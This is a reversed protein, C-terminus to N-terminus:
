LNNLFKYTQEAIHEIVLVATAEEVGMSFIALVFPRDGYVFAVDNVVGPLTGIKHEVRVEIPIGARIRDQFVTEALVDLLLRRLQENATTEAHAAYMYGAMEQPTTGITEPDFWTLTGGLHQIHEYVRSFGFRRVLINTAINDSFRIAYDILEEVAFSDGEAVFSQLYGTGDEWDRSIYTLQEDLTAQGKAIQDLIFLTMPLKMTSAAPFVTKTNIGIGEGSL